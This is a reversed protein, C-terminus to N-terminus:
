PVRLTICPTCAEMAQLLQNVFAVPWYICTIIALLPIASLLSLASLSVSDGAPLVLSNCYTSTYPSPVRGALPHWILFPDSSSHEVIM